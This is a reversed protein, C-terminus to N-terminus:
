TGEGAVARGAPAPEPVAAPGPMTRDFWGALEAVVFRQRELSDFARVGEGPLDMVRVSGLGHRGSAAARRLRGDRREAEGEMVLVPAERGAESLQALVETAGLPRARELLRRIPGRARTALGRVTPSREVLKQLRRRRDVPRKAHAGPKLMVLALSRAGLRRAVGIATRAGYCNGALGVHETGTARRAFEVVAAADEVAPRRLDMAVHGTSDGVGQWDLRVVALGREAVLRAAIKWMAGQHSRPAGGGGQLLAILGRPEGGPLTVIAALHEDGVPVFVPLERVAPDRERMRPVADREKRELTLPAPARDAAAGPEELWPLVAEVIITDLGAFVDELTGQETPRFHPAGLAPAFEHEVVKLSAPGGLENLRAALAALPRLPDSGRSIQVILSRGAPGRLSSSLVMAQIEDFAERRLPFGHLDLVGDRALRERLDKVSPAEGRAGARVMARRLLEGVYRAGDVAPAVMVVPSLGAADAALAAVAGGLRWGILGIREALGRDAAWRVADLTDRVHTSLTAAGPDEESDGYGQCHFRLVPFGAASLARATAAEVRLMELQETGFSHCSVWAVDRQAGLPTSLVGVTRGSGVRLRVFEEAYGSTGDRYSRHAELLAEDVPM